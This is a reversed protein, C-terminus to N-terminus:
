GTTAVLACRAGHIALRAFDLACEPASNSARHYATLAKRRIGGPRLTGRLRAPTGCNCLVLVMFLFRNRLNAIPAASSAPATVSGTLAAEAPGPPVLPGPAQSKLGPPRTRSCGDGFAPGCEATRQFGAGPAGFVM